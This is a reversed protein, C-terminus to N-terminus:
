LYLDAPGSVLINIRFKENLKGRINEMLMCFSFIPVYISFVCIDKAIKIPFAGKITKFLNKVFKM